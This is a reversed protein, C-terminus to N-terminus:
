LPIVAATTPSAALVLFHAYHMAEGADLGTLAEWIARASKAATGGVDNLAVVSAAADSLNLTDPASV